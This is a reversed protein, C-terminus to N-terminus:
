ITLGIKVGGTDMVPRKRHVVAADAAALTGGQAGHVVNFQLAALRPPVAVAGVAHGADAIAGLCGDGIAFFGCGGSRCRGARDAPLGIIVIEM